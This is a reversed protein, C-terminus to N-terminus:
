VHHFYFTHYGVWSFQYIWFLFMRFFLREKKEEEHKEMKLGDLCGEGGEFFVKIILKLVMLELYVVPWGVVM